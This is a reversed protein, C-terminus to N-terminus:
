EVSFLVSNDMREAEKEAEKDGKKAKETLRGFKLWDESAETCDLNIILKGRKIETPNANKIM